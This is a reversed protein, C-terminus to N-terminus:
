RRFRVKDIWRRKQYDYYFHTSHSRPDSVECVFNQWVEPSDANAGRVGTDLFLIEPYKVHKLAVTEGRLKFTRLDAKGIKLRERNALVWGQSEECIMRALLLEGEVHQHYEKGRGSFFAFYIVVLILIGAGWLKVPPVAKINEWIEQLKEAPSLKRYSM